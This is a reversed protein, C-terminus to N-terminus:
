EALSKEVPLQPNVKATWKCLFNCFTRKGAYFDGASLISKFHKLAERVAKQPLGGTQVFCMGDQRHNSHLIYRWLPTNNGQPLKSM